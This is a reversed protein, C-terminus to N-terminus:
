LKHKRYIPLAQVCETIVKIAAGSTRTMVMTITQIGLLHYIIKANILFSASPYHTERTRMQNEKLEFIERKKM